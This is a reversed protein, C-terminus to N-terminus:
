NVILKQTVSSKENSLKVLYIGSCLAE